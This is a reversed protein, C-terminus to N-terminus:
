SGGWIQRARTDVILPWRAVNDRVFFRGSQNYHRGLKDEGVFGAELRWGYATYNCQQYTDGLSLQSIDVSIQAVTIGGGPDLPHSDAAKDPPTEGIGPQWGGRFFGTDVPSDLVVNLALDQISLRALQEM